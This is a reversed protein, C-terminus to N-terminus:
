GILGRTLNNYDAEWKAQTTGSEFITVLIDDEDFKETDFYPGQELLYGTIFEYVDEASPFPNDIRQQFEREFVQFISPDMSAGNVWTSNRESFILYRGIATFDGDVFYPKNGIQVGELLAERMLYYSLDVRNMNAEQQQVFGHSPDWIWREANIGADVVMGSIKEVYAWLQRDDNLCSEYGLLMRQDTTGSIGRLTEGQYNNKTQVMELIKPGWYVDDSIGHESTFIHWYQSGNETKSPLYNSSHVYYSM